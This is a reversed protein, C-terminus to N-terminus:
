LIVRYVWVDYPGADSDVVLYYTGPDLSAAATPSACLIQSSESDCTSRLYAVVGASASADITVRSRVALELTYVVDSGATSAGGCSGRHDDFSGATTGTLETMGAGVITGVPSACTADPVDAGIRLVFPGPPAPSSSAAQLRLLYDGGPANRWSLGSVPGAWPAGNCAVTSTRIDACDTFITAHMLTDSTAVVRLHRPGPLTFRYFADTEGDWMTSLCITGAFSTGALSNTGGFLDGPIDTDFPVDEPAACDDGAIPVAPTRIRVHLTFPGAADSTPSGIGVLAYYTGAALSGFSAWSPKCAFHTERPLDCDGVVILQYTPPDVSLEVDSPGALAFRYAVDAFSRSSCMPAGYNVTAGLLTGDFDGGASVDVADDCTDNAPPPTAASFTV